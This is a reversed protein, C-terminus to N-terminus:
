TIAKRLVIEAVNFGQLIAGKVLGKRVTHFRIFKCAHLRAVKTAFTTLLPLYGFSSDNIHAHTIVLEKFADGTVCFTLSGIPVDDLRLVISSLYGTEIGRKIWDDWATPSDFPIAAHAETILEDINELAFELTRDDVRERHLIRKPQPLNPM